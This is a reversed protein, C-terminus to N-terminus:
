KHGTDPPRSVCNQITWHAVYSRLMSKCSVVFSRLCALLCAFLKLFSRSRVCKRKGQGMEEVGPPKAPEQPFGVLRGM